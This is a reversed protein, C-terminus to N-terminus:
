NLYYTEFHLSFNTQVKNPLSVNNNKKLEGKRNADVIALPKRKITSIRLGAKRYQEAFTMMCNFTPKVTNWSEVIGGSSKMALQLIEKDSSM